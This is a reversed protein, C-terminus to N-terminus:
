RRAFRSRLRYRFQNQGTLERSPLSYVITGAYCARSEEDQCAPRKRRITPHLEGTTPHLLMRAPGPVATV